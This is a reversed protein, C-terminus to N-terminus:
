AGTKCGRARNVRNLFDDDETIIDVVVEYAYADLVQVVGSFYVTYKDDVDDECHSNMANRYTYMEHMTDINTREVKDRKANNSKTKHAGVVVEGLLDPFKLNKTTKVKGNADKVTEPRVCLSIIDWCVEPNDIDAKTYPVVAKGDVDIGLLRKKNAERRAEWDIM